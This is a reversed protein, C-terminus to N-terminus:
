QITTSADIDISRFPNLKHSLSNIPNIIPNIWAIKIQITELTKFSLQLVLDLSLQCHSRTWSIISVCIYANM